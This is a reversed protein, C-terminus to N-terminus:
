LALLKTWTAPGVVGDVVLGMSQQYTRVANFTGPGFSGDIAVSPCLRVSAGANILGQLVHVHNIDTSGQSLTPLMNAYDQNQSPAPAPTSPAPTVVSVPITPNMVGGIFAQFAQDSGLWVSCDVSGAGPVNEKDTYQWLVASQWPYPINPASSYNSIWLSYRAAPGSNLTAPNWFWAGTYIDGEHGFNAAIASMFAMSANTVGQPAVGDTTEIDAAPPLEGPQWRGAVSVFHQAQAAADVGPHFFHYAGVVLGAARAAATHSAFYPNTYGTGETAKIYAGTYGAAKVQQFNVNPQFSSIDIIKISM